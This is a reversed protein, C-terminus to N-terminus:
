QKKSHRYKIVIFAFLGCVTSLLVVNEIASFIHAYKEYVNGVQWGVIGLIIGRIFVGVFTITFYKLENMQIIGCFASIAVSPVFPIIRATGIMYEDRRTGSLRSKLKEIDSWFLGIYKGWKDIIFKGGIRAIYFIVFSGITVGLSAPLAVAFILSSIASASIDGQVFLFGSMTMILASPIPAVVEEAVSAIFVGLAGLPLVYMQLYHIATEIM